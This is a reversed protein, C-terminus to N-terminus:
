YILTHSKTFMVTVPANIIGSHAEPWPGIGYIQSYDPNDDLDLIRIVIM